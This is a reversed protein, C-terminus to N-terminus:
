SDNPRDYTGYTVTIKATKYVARTLISNAGAALSGPDDDLPLTRTSKAHLWPYGPDRAPFHRVLRGGVYEVFGLVDLVFSDRATWPDVHFTRVTSQDQASFNEECACETAVYAGPM